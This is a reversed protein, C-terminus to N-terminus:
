QKEVKELMQLYDYEGAKWKRWWEAVESSMELSPKPRALYSQLTEKDEPHEQWYAECAMRLYKWFTDIDVVVEEEEFLTFMIGNEFGMGHSIEYEDQDTPFTCSTVGELGLGYGKTISDVYKVFDSRNALSDLFNIMPYLKKNKIDSVLLDFVKM